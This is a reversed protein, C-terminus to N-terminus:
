IPPFCAFNIERSIGFLWNIQMCVVVHHFDPQMAYCLVGIASSMYSVAGFDVPIRTSETLEALYATFQTDVMACNSADLFPLDIAFITRHTQM